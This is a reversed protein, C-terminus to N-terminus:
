IDSAQNYQQIDAAINNQQFNHRKFIIQNMSEMRNMKNDQYNNIYNQHRDDCDLMM